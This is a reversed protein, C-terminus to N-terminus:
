CNFLAPTVFILGLSSSAIVHPASPCWDVYTASKTHGTLEHCSDGTNPDTLRISCDGLAAAILTGEFNIKAKFIRDQLDFKGAIQFTSTDWVFIKGDYSASMYVGNDNPYWFVSSVANSHSNSYSSEAIPGIKQSAQTSTDLHYVVVKGETGGSLLYRCESNDIAICTGHNNSRHGSHIEIATSLSISKLRNIAFLQRFNCKEIPNVQSHYLRKIFDRAFPETSSEWSSASRM